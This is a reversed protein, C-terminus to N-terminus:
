FMSFVYVNECNQFMTIVVGDVSFWLGIEGRFENSLSNLIRIDLLTFVVILLKMLGSCYTNPDSCEM